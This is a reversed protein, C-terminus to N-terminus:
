VNLDVSSIRYPSLARRWAEERRKRQPDAAGVVTVALVADRAAERAKWFAYGAVVPAFLLPILVAFVLEAILEGDPGGNAGRRWQSNGNTACFACFYVLFLVWGVCGGFVALKLHLHENAVVRSLCWSERSAPSALRKVRAFALGSAALWVAWLLACAFLVWYYWGTEGTFGEAARITWTIIAFLFSISVLFLAVLSFDQAKQLEIAGLNQSVGDGSM